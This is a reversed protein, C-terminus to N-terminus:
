NSGDLQRNIHNIELECHVRLVEIVDAITLRHLEQSAFLDGWYCPGYGYHGGLLEAINASAGLSNKVSTFIKKQNILDIKDM